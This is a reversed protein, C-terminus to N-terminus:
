ICVCVAFMTLESFNSVQPLDNMDKKNCSHKLHPNHFMIIVQGHKDLLLGHYVVISVISAITLAELAWLSPPELRTGAYRPQKPLPIGGGPGVTGM